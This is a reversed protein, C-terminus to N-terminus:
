SSVRFWEPLDDWPLDWVGDTLIVAAADHEADGSPSQIGGMDYFCLDVHDVKGDIVTVTTTSVVNITTSKPAEHNTM